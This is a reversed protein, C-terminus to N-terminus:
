PQAVESKPTLPRGGLNATAGTQGPPRTIGIVAAMSTGRAVKGALREPVRGRGTVGGREIGIFFFCHYDYMAVAIAAPAAM